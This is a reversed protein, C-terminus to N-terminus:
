RGCSWVHENIPSINERLIHSDRTGKPYTQYYGRAAGIGIEDYFEDIYRHLRILRRLDIVFHGVNIVVEQLAMADHHLNLARPKWEHVAVRLLEDVNVVCGFGIKLLRRLAHVM